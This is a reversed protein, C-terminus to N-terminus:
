ETPRENVPGPNHQDADPEIGVDYMLHHTIDATVELKTLLGLEGVQRQEHRTWNFTQEEIRHLMVDINRVEAQIAEKNGAQHSAQLSNASQLVAYANRYASDFGGNGQYNYHMDLCLDNAVVPLMGTLEDVHAFGGFVVPTPEPAQQSAISDSSTGNVIQTQPYAYTSIVTQPYYYYGDNNRFYVGGNRYGRPSLLLRSVGPYRRFILSAVPSQSYRGFRQGYGGYGGFRQGYGGYNFNNRRWQNNYNRNSNGPGYNPSAIRNAGPGYNPSAIRGAGQDGGGRQQVRVGQDGGGGEQVRVGQEGGGRQQGGAGAQGGGGKQGDGAQGGGRNGGGGKQGAGAQGGGRNKGGGGQQANAPAILSLALMGGLITLMIKKM